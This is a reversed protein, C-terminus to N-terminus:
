AAPRARVLPVPAVQQLVLLVSVAVAAMAMLVPGTAAFGAQQLVVGTVAPCVAAGTSGAALQWGVAAPASQRGLRAPTMLSLAPYIPGIGLGLLAFGAAAGAGPLAWILVAGLVATAAGVPALLAPGWGSPSTAAAFRSGALAAWYATVGLGVAISSPATRAGLFSAAWSATSFELGGALFFAGMTLSLVGWRLTGKQHRASLEPDHHPRRAMALWALGLTGQALAVAVYALRWSALDVAALVALPALAAGIGYVAHLVNLYAPRAGLTVKTNLAADIGGAALGMLVAAAVLVLLSGAGALGATGVAQVLTATTLAGFAGFRRLTRGSNSSTTLYGLTSGVLVVGLADL